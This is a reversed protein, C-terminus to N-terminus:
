PGIDATPRPYDDRSDSVGGHTRLYDFTEQAPAGRVYSRGPYSWYTPTHGQKDVANIECGAEVLLAAVDPHSFYAAYHLPTKDFPPKPRKTSARGWRNNGGRANPDAGQELLYEVVDVHGGRAAYHLPAMFRTDMENVNAGFQLVFLRVSELEGRQAARPLASNDGTAWTAGNDVLLAVMDHSKTESLMSSVFGGAPDCLANADAGFELLLRAFKLDNREVAWHLPTYNVTFPSTVAAGHELLDRVIEYHGRSAAQLLPTSFVGRGSVSSYANVDAGQEMLLHAADAQGSDVARWLPTTRSHKSNVLEPDRTALSRIADLDGSESALHIQSVRDFGFGWAYCAALALVFTLWILNRRLALAGVDPRPAAVTEAIVARPLCYRRLGALLVAEIVLALAIFWKMSERDIAGSTHPMGFTPGYSTGISGLGTRGARGRFTGIGVCLVILALSLIIVRAVKVRLLAGTFHVIGLLVSALLFTALNM